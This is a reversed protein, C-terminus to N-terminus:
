KWDRISQIEAIIARCVACTVKGEKGPGPMLGDDGDLQIGCVTSPGAYSLFAHWAGNVIQSEFHRNGPDSAIMQFVKAM